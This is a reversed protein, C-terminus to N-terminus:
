KADSCAQDLVLERPLHPCGQWAAHRVENHLLYLGQPFSLYLPYLGQLNDRVNFRTNEGEKETDQRSTM